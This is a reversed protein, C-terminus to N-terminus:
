GLYSPPEDERRPQAGKDGHRAAREGPSTVDPARDLHYPSKGQHANYVAWVTAGITMSAILLVIWTLSSYYGLYSWSVVIILGWITFWWGALLVLGAFIMLAELGSGGFLEKHTKYHYTQGSLFLDLKYNKVYREDPEYEAARIAFVYRGYHDEPDRHWGGPVPVYITRGRYRAEFTLAHKFPRFKVFRGEVEGPDALDDRGITLWHRKGREDFYALDYGITDAPVYMTSTSGYGDRARLAFYYRGDYGKVLPPDFGGATRGKASTKSV